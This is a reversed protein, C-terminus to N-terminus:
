PQVFGFPSGAPAILGIAERFGFGHGGESHFDLDVGVVVDMAVFCRDVSRLTCTVPRGYQERPTGRSHRLHSSLRRCRCCPPLAGRFCGIATVPLRRRKIFRDLAGGLQLPQQIMRETPQLTFSLPRRVAETECNSVWVGRLCSSRLSDVQGPKRSGAALEDIWYGKRNYHQHLGTEYDRTLLSEDPIGAVGQITQRSPQHLKFGDWSM